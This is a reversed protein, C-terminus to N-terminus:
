GNEDRAGGRGCVASVPRYESRPPCCGMVTDRADIGAFPPSEAAGFVVVVEAEAEAGLRVHTLQSM